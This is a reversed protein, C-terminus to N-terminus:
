DNLLEKCERKCNPCQNTKAVFIGCIKCQYVPKGQARAMKILTKEVERLHM